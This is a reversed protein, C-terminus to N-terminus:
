MEGLDVVIAHSAINEILDNRGLRAVRCIHHLVQGHM